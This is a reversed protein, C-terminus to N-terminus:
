FTETTDIRKELQKIREQLDIQPYEAYEIGYEYITDILSM